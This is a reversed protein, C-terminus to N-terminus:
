TFLDHLFKRFLLVLCFFPSCLRLAWGAEIANEYNLGYNIDTGGAGMIRVLSLQKEAGAKMNEM